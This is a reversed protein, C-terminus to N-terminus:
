SKSNTRKLSAGMWRSEWCLGKKLAPEKEYAKVIGLRGKPRGPRQRTESWKPVKGLDTQMRPGTEEQLYEVRGQQQCGEARPKYPGEKM